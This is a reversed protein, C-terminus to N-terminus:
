ASASLSRGGPLSSGMRRQFLQTRASWAAGSQPRGSVGITSQSVSKTGWLRQPNQDTKEARRGEAIACPSSVPGHLGDSLQQSGLGVRDQGDGGVRGDEPRQLQHR